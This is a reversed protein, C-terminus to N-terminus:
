VIQFNGAALMDTGAYVEVKYTDPLWQGPQEFGWAWFFVWATQGKPFTMPSNYGKGGLIDGASNYYFFTLDFAVDHPAPLCVVEVEWWIYRTEEKKFAEGYNRNEVPQLEGTGEFFLIRSRKVYKKFFDPIPEDDDGDGTGTVTEPAQPTIMTSGLAMGEAPQQPKEEPLLEFLSRRIRNKEATQQEYNLIGSNANAKFDKFWAAVAVVEMFKKQNSRHAQKLADLAGDLDDDEILALIQDFSM